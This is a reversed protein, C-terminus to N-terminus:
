DIPMVQMYEFRWTSDPWDNTSTFFGFYPSNVWRTDTYERQLQLPQGREAAYVRIVDPRVEVRYHNWDDPDIGEYDDGGEPIDGVRKMPSGGCDPCWVLRDVREFLLRIQDYYIGNLNYFHNFCEDHRYWEDFSTGPPCNQGTWDGGFVAGGSHAFGLSVIRAEFDIAYPLRPAPRLPSAIGWDYRDTIQMVYRGDEYFGLVEERYTSRRIGWGTGPNDFDDRYGGIVAVVNSWPGAVQGVLSRARYYFVNFPSPQKTITLSQQQGVVYPTPSTFNPDPSEHIEFGTAGLSETWSLGWANQANPQGATLTIPQPDPQLGYITLPVFQIPSAAPEEVTIEARANVTQEESQIRATNEIVTDPQADTSLRAMIVITVASDEAVIGQWEAVGADIECRDSIFAQCDIDLFEIDAPAEDTMEAPIDFQGTNIIEITYSFVGGPPVSDKSATKTSDSLDAAQLVSAPLTHAAIYREVDDTIASLEEDTPAFQVVSPDDDSGTPPAADEDQAAAFQGLALALLLVLVL